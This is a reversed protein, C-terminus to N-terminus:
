GTERPSEERLFWLVHGCRDCVFNEAQRNTWELGFFTLGPTNMLSRRKWFRDHGCVPCVLAHGAVIREGAADGELSDAERQLRRKEEQDLGDFCTRCIREAVFHHRSPYERGCRECHM